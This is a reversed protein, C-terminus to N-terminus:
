RAFRGREGGQRRDHRHGAELDIPEERGGPEGQRRKPDDEGGGDEQRCRLGPVSREVVIKSRDEEIRQHGLRDAHESQEDRDGRGDGVLELPSRPDM